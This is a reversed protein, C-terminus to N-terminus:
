TSVSARAAVEAVRRIERRTAGDIALQSMGRLTAILYKAVVEAPASLSTGHTQAARELMHKLREEVTNKIELTIASAKSDSPALAGGTQMIACGPPNGPTTYVKAAADLLGLVAPEVDLDSTAAEDIFGTYQAVYQEICKRYLEEKSGFANYLSSPGTGLAEALDAISTRDYGRRWFVRLAQEIAESESHKRPRGM